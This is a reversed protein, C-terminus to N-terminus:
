LLGGAVRVTEVARMGECESCLNAEVWHCGVSCGWEDTCGCVRCVGVHVPSLQLLLRELVATRLVSVEAALDRQQHATNPVSLNAGIAVLEEYLEGLRDVIDRETVPARPLPERSVTTM